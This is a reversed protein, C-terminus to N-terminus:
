YDEGRGGGNVGGWACVGKNRGVFGNGGNVKMGGGVGEGESKKVESDGELLGREGM